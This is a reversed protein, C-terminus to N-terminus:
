RFTVAGFFLLCNWFRNEIQLSLGDAPPPRLPLVPIYKLVHPNQAGGSAPDHGRLLIWFLNGCLWRLHM